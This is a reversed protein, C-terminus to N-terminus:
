DRPRTLVEYQYAHPGPGALRGRADYTGARALPSRRVLGRWQRQDYTRLVYTHDLHEIGRPREVTLHSIVREARALNTGPEPPLYNVLQTVRCSGRAATWLDEEELLFDYDTLSIGVVYAAGPRLMRAVQGLHALVARDSELHRISNVPNFAFDVSGPRLGARSAAPLFDIMDAQFYRPARTAARSRSRIRRNAAYALMDASLDFGAARRGRAAAVRLYRGSGCAPEFWLRDRRLSARGGGAIAKEIRELADIERWTDPGYLIDYLAPEAYLDPRPDPM